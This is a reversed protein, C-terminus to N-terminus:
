LPPNRWMHYILMGGGILLLLLATVFAYRQPNVQVFEDKSEQQNGGSSRFSDTNRLTEEDLDLNVMTDALKQSADIPELSTFVKSFPEEEQPSVLEPGDVVFSMNGFEITDGNLLYGPESLLTYNLRTGNTSGMDVVCLQNDHLKLRAHQSSISTDSLNVDCKNLRGLLLNQGEKITIQIQDDLSTLTVM